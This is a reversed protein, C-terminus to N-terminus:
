DERDPLSLRDHQKNGHEDVRVALAKLEADSISVVHLYIKESGPGAGVVGRSDHGAQELTSLFSEVVFLPM